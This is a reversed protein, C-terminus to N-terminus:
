PHISKLTHDNTASGQLADRLMRPRPGRGRAEADGARAGGGSAAEHLTSLPLYM